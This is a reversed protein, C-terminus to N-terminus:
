PHFLSHTNVEAVSYIRRAVQGKDSVSSVSTLWMRLQKRAQEHNLKTTIIGRENLVRGVEGDALRMGSDEKVLLEDDNAIHKLHRDIRWLRVATTGWTALRLVGCVTKTADIDGDLAALQKLEVVKEDKKGARVITGFVARRAAFALQKERAKEEIRKLQSPFITTSPLMGPVYIVILPILEEMIIVVLLFPFLKLIDEKHTKIFRYEARSIPEGGEKVRLKIQAVQVRHTNIM